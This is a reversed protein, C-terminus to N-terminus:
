LWRRVAARYAQYRDGHLDQLHKEELRVQIQILIEGAVFISASVASPLAIFLGFLNIRMALFIPNRSWRFLGHKVLESPKDTDIGIRWSSGMQTQALMVLMLSTILLLWGLAYLTPQQLGAIAGFEAHWAPQIAHTFVLLFAALTVFKFARAVYGFTDDCRSLVYPNVGTRRFQWWSRAVFAILFFALYFLLLNM